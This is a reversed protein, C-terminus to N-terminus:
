AGATRAPDLMAWVRWAAFGVYPLAAPIWMVLGALQQDELATLGFPATTLLHPAFLPRTAFTLLAGLMGMHLLTGLSLTVAHGVRDAGVMAAWLWAASAILSIEMAWYLANSGLAADYPQPMHWFWIAGLHVLFAAGGGGARWGTGWVLLPAAVAVMLIHHLVRVSFLASSLACLPSVFALALVAIGALWPGWRPMAVTAAAGIALAAILWPDLNWATWLGGPIPAAGCYPLTSGDM